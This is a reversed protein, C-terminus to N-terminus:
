LKKFKLRLANSVVCISSLSMALGGLMPNLLIQAVPYLVGAAIPICISNYCFAWFLNQKINKLTMRSLRIARAVDCPDNHMLVIDASSVAIDSGSGIACGIDAQALAPADNIGDGVMMVTTYKEKLSSIIQAKQNPLVEAYVEDAELENAIHEACAKNDGSLLVTRINMEKLKKFAEKSTEKLQDAVAIVGLLEKDESVYILSKGEQSFKEAKQSIGSIDVGNERMLTENGALVEKGDILATLGKGGIEEFGEAEFTYEVGKQKAYETIAKALPHNSLEEIAACLGICRQENQSIIETVEPKGKTVTGTKDFVAVRVKQATELVEGNRILIGNSAGLGTGVMIATPTALGLACPCAIVLVSTFIQLSFAIDNSLLLWVVAAVVAIIMVAPVFIGAVKDATRSIPAKKSQAEEVFEIIKALTTDKSTKTVKVTISGNLNISGAFVGDGVGKFVPMSEGTLMAEDVSAEGSLIVADLPIAAGAKILLEAGLPVEATPVEYAIGDRLVLSIDPSLEVLKKIAGATKKRSKAELSKGLMVLTIVVAASEYYLSHMSHLNTFINYTMVLSYIFSAGAGLAVLTDMNPNGRFLAPIGKTFFKRGIFLVPITLLLQTLAFGFPNKDMDFFPLTPISKFLMQGMSVYLLVASLLAACILEYKREKPQEEIKSQKKSTDEELPAITFGAKTVVREFDSFSILKEDYEVTMKETILNVECKEVGSLRSVVRNVAASCAACAMGGIKYVDTKM